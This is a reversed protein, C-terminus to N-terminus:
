EFPLEEMPHTALWKSFERASERARERASEREDQIFEEAEQILGHKSLVKYYIREKFIHEQLDERLNDITDTGSLRALYNERERPTLGELDQRIEEMYRYVDLFDCPGGGEHCAMSGNEHVSNGDAVWEHLALREAETMETNKEYEKLEKRLYTAKEKSMTKMRCGKWRYCKTKVRHLLRDPIATASLQGIFLKYRRGM